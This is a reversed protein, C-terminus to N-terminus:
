SDFQQGARVPRGALFDRATMVRRGEPQLQLIRLIEGDGAAVTLRDGAAEIVTGPPM